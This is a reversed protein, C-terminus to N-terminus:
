PTVVTCQGSFSNAPTDYSAPPTVHQEVGIACADSPYNEITSGAIAPGSATSSAFIGVAVKQGGVTITGDGAWDVTVGTLSSSALAGGGNNPANFQIGGWAGPTPNAGYATFTIPDTSTGAAVLAAQASGNPDVDISGGSKFDLTNPAAITLTATSNGAGEIQVGGSSGAQLGAVLYPLPIAPWTQSVEVIASDGTGPPGGAGKILEVVGGAATLTPPLTRAQNASIIFPADGAAWDKVTLLGSGTGYGVDIGDLVIGNGGDHSVTLDHLPLDLSKTSSYVLLAAPPEDYSYGDQAPGGGGYEFTAHAITSTALSNDALVVSTWDGAAPIAASSTFIIGAKETGVAVLGGAEATGSGTGTGISLFGGKDFAITVGPDITLVPSTSGAVTTGSSSVHWPKCATTLTTSATITAPLTCSTPTTGSNPKGGNAPGCAVILVLLPAFSTKRRPTM